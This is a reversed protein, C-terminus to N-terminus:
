VVKSYIEDVSAAPVVAYSTFVESNKKTAIVIAIKNAPCINLCSTTIVRVKSGLNEKAKAKLESKIREPSNISHTDAFQKGCKDCIMVLTEEWGNKILLDMRNEKEFQLINNYYM